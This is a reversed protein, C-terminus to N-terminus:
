ARVCVFVCVFQSLLSIDFPRIKTQSYRLSRFMDLGHTATRGCQTNLLELHTQTHKRRKM